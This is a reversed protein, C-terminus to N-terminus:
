KVRAKLTLEIAIIHKCKVQRYTSDPCTCNRLASNVYYTKDPTWQSMVTWTRNQNQLVSSFVATLDKAAIIRKEREFEATTMETQM